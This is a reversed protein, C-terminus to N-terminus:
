SVQERRLRKVFVTGAGLMLLMLLLIGGVSVVPVAAPVQFQSSVSIGDVVGTNPYQTAVLSGSETIATQITHDILIQYRVQLSGTLNNTGGNPYRDRSFIRDSLLLAISTSQSASMTRGAKM